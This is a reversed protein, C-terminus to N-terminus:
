HLNSRISHNVRPYIYPTRQGLLKYRSNQLNVNLIFSMIPIGSGITYIITFVLSVKFSMWINDALNIKDFIIALIAFIICWIFMGLGFLARKWAINKWYESTFIHKFETDPFWGTIKNIQTKLFGFTKDVGKDTEVLATNLSSKIWTSIINWVGTDATPTVPVTYPLTPNTMFALFSAVFIFIIWPLYKLLKKKKSPNFIDYAAVGIAFLFLSFIIFAITITTTDAM